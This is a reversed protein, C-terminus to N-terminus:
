SALVLVTVVTRGAATVVTGAIPARHRMGIAWNLVAEFDGTLVAETVNRTNGTVHKPGTYTRVIPNTMVNFGSAGACRMSLFASGAVPVTQGSPDAIIPPQVYAIHCAPRGAKFVFEVRDTVGAPYVRVSVLLAATAPTPGQAPLDIPGYGM